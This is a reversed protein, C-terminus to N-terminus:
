PVGALERLGRALARGKAGEAAVLLVTDDGAITGLVGEMGSRDVAEALANAAGPTTKVVVLNGSADISTVFEAMLTRVRETAGVAAAEGPRAYRLHGAADRVRVLGLEELDRSITSQTALHGLAALRDRIEQQSALPESRVLELLAHQRARKV